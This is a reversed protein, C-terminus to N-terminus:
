SEINYITQSVLDKMEQGKSPESHQAIAERQWVSFTQMKDQSCLSSVENVM